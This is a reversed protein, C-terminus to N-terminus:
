REFEILKTYESRIYPEFVHHIQVFEFQIKYNQKSCGNVEELQNENVVGLGAIRSYTVSVFIYNIRFLRRIACFAGPIGLNAM